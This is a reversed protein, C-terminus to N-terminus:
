VEIGQQQWQEVIEPPLENHYQSRFATLEGLFTLSAVGCPGNRNKAVIVEAIGKLTPDEPKYVEERYVFWVQDADQEIAGSERLDALKPRPDSRQETARSLQSLVIVWLDLDKALLKLSRTMETVEQNRNENGRRGDSAAKMLQLYDIVVFDLQERMKLARVQAILQHVDAPPQDCLGVNWERVRNSANLLTSWNEQELAGARIRAQTIGSQESLVRLKIEPSGMEYSYIEGGRGTKGLHCALNLAFSTKGMGPRGAIITLRGRGGGGFHDIDPFGTPMVISGSAHATATEEALEFMGDGLMSRKTTAAASQVSLASAALDAAVTAGPNAEIDQPLKAAIALLARRARMDRLIALYQDVRGLDPLDVDLGAIYAVGGAKALQGVADLHARLTLTDCVEVACIAARIIRHDERSFLDDTLEHRLRAHHEESLMCAALVARESEVSSWEAFRPSTRRSM